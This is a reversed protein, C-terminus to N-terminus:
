FKVHGLIDFSYKPKKIKGEEGSDYTLLEGKGNNMTVMTVYESDSTDSGGSELTVKVAVLYTGKSNSTIIGKGKYTTTNAISTYKTTDSTISFDTLEFKPKTGLYIILMIGIILTIIITWFWWKKFIAKSNDHKAM